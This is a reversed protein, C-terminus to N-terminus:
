TGYIGHLSYHPTRQSFRIKNFLNLVKQRKLNTYMKSPNIKTRM